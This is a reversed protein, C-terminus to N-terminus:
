SPAQLTGQDTQMWLRHETTRLTLSSSVKGQRIEAVQFYKCYIPQLRSRQFCQIKKQPLQVGSQCSGCKSDHLEPSSHTKNDEM